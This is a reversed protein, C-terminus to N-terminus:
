QVKNIIVERSRSGDQPGILGSEELRDIIRAARSYGIGLKLQLFSTSARNEAKIIELAKETLADEHYKRVEQKDYKVVKVQKVPKALVGGKRMEREVKDWYSTITKRLDLSIDEIILEATEVEPTSNLLVAVDLAKAPTLTFWERGGNGGYKRLKDHISKELVTANIARRASVLEIKKANSTQISSLRKKLNNAVGVKYESGARILYVYKM